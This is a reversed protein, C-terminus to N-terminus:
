GPPSRRDPRALALPYASWCLLAFAVFPFPTALLLVISVHLVVGLAVAAVRTRRPWLGVGVALETAVVASAFYPMMGDPVTVWRLDSLEAGDLFRPNLKSLGAFVYCSSVSALALLQPWWPVDTGRSSRRAAAGPAWAHDSRAAVFALVVLVALIRHNSSLQLDTLMLVVDGVACVLLSTRVLVGAMVGLSAAAMVVLWTATPLQDATPLWDAVPTLLRDDQLAVLLGTGELTTVLLGLGLLTRAAAVPRPDTRLTTLM